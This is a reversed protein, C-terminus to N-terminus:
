SHCFHTRSRVDQFRAAKPRPERISRPRRSHCDRDPRSNKLHSNTESVRGRGPKLCVDGSSHLFKHSVLVCSQDFVKFDLRQGISNKFQDTAAVTTVGASKRKTARAFCTGAPRTWTILRNLSSRYRCFALLFVHDILFGARTSPSSISGRDSSAECQYAAARISVLPKGPQQEQKAHEM